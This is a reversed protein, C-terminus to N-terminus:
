CCNKKKNNKFAKLKVSKSKGIIKKESNNSDEGQINLEEKKSFKCDNRGAFKKGIHTFLEKIGYDKKASVSFFDINREKAFKKADEENVEELEALDSKNAVLVLIIDSSTNEKVKNYWFKILENFSNQRTIDYVLIAVKANKYFIQTLSRYREQGATDWIDFTLKEGDNVILDKAFFSGGLSPEINEEFINDIYRKIISTKGVGSEGILVIKIGENNIEM